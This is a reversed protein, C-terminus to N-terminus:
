IRGYKHMNLMEPPVGYNIKNKKYINEIETRLSDKYKEISDTNPIVLGHQYAASVFHKIAKDIGEKKSMLKYIKREPNFLSFNKDFKNDFIQNAIENGILPSMTYGDRKTGTVIWIGKISTKGILPFTDVSTPRHGVIIKKVKSSAHSVNVEEVLSKQLGFITSLIPDNIPIHSLRNTAGLYFHKGDVPLTHIGCAMGRNPTRIVSDPMNKKIDSEVILSTGTGYFIKQVENNLHKIKEILIKSYAGNCIIINSSTYSNNKEDVIKDIRNNKIKVDKVLANIFFINKNKKLYNEYSNFTEKSNLSGERPIYITKLSRKKPDPNYGHIKSSDFIEYKESYKKLANEIALFNADDLNDASANNIIFTGNNIKLKNKNVSNLEKVRNHWLDRSQLLLEFKKKGVDSNLTDYEVEAFCNLMFGAALSAAGIRKQPGIIAIKLKTNKKSLSFATALSISGNGVLIIDFTNHM